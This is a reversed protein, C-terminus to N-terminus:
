NHARTRCDPCRGYLVLDHGTVEFQRSVLDRLKGLCAKTEFVKACL